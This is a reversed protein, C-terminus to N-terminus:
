LPRYSSGVPQAQRLAEKARPFPMYAPGCIAQLERLLDAAMDAAMCAFDVNAAESELRLWHWYQAEIKAIRIQFDLTTQVM